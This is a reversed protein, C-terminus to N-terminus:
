DPIPNSVTGMEAALLERAVKKSVSVVSGPWLKDAVEGTEYPVETEDEGELRAPDVGVKKVTTGAPPYWGNSLTVDINPDVPEPKPEPKPEPTNDKSSVM